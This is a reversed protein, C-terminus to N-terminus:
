EIIQIAKKICRILEEKTFLDENKLIGYLYKLLEKQKNRIKLSRIILLDNKMLGYRVM